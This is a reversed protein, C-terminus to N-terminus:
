VLTPLLGLKGINKFTLFFKALPGHGLAGGGRFVGSFADM